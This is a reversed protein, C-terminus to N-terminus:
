CRFMFIFGMLRIVCIRFLTEESVFFFVACVCRTNRVNADAYHFNPYNFFFQSRTCRFALPTLQGTRSGNHM